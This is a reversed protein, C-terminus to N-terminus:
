DQPFWTVPGNIPRGAGWDSRHSTKPSEVSRSPLKRRWKSGNQWSNPMSNPHKPGVTQGRRFMRLCSRIVRAAAGLIVRPGDNGSNVAVVKPAFKAGPKVELALSTTCPPFVVTFANFDAMAFVCKIPKEQVRVYDTHFRMGLYQNHCHLVSYPPM